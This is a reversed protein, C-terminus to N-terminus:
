ISMPNLEASSFGSHLPREDGGAADDCQESTHMKLGKRRRGGQEGERCCAERREQRERRRRRRGIRDILQNVLDPFQAWREVHALSRAVSLHSHQKSDHRPDHLPLGCLCFCCLAPEPGVWYERFTRVHFFM